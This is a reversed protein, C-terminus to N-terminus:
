DGEGFVGAMLGELRGVWLSGGDLRGGWLSGGDLRGGWLSGGAIWYTERGL